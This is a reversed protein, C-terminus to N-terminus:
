ARAPGLLGRFPSTSIGRLDQKPPCVLEQVDSLGPRSWASEVSKPNPGERIIGPRTHRSKEYLGSLAPSAEELRAPMM